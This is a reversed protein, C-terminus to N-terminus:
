TTFGNSSIWKAETELADESSRLIATAAALLAKAPLQDLINGNSRPLYRRLIASSISKRSSSIATASVFDLPLVIWFEASTTAAARTQYRLHTSLNRIMIGRPSSNISKM